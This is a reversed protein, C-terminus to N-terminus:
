LREEMKVLRRLLGMTVGGRDVRRDMRRATWINNEITRKAVVELAELRLLDVADRIPVPQSAARSSPDDEPDNWVPSNRNRAAQCAFIRWNMIAAALM